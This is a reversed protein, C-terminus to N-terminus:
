EHHVIVTCCWFLLVLLFFVLVVVFCFCVRLASVPESGDPIGLRSQANALLHVIHERQNSVNGEQLVAPSFM